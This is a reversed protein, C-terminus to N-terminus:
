LQNSRLHSLKEGFHLGSAHPSAATRADPHKQAFWRGRIDGTATIQDAYEGRFREVAKVVGPWYDDGYDDGVIVGGPSLLPWYADIDEYVSAEDHAGDIFILESFGPRGQRIRELILSAQRSPLPLPVVHETLGAHVVNAMFQDQITPRGNKIGLLARWGPNLWHESSGLWTDVCVISADGHSLARRLMYHSSKGKWSGVEIIFKPKLTDIFNDFIETNEFWGDLDLPYSATDADSFPNGGYLLKNISNALTM